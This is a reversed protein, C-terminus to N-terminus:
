KLKFVQEFWRLSENDTIQLRKAVAPSFIAFTGTAKACCEDDANFISGEMLAERRSIKDLVRGQVKLPNAVYVPKIFDISISKTMPVQKLLHITAWSMIEDLITGLVGGHVLNNWGCLHQPVTVTSTVSTEDAWFTM